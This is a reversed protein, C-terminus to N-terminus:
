GKCEMEFYFDMCVIKRHLKYLSDAVECFTLFDDEKNNQLSQNLINLKDNVIDKIYDWNITDVKSKILEYKKKM